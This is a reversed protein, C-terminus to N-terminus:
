NKGGIEKGLKQEMDVKGAVFWVAKEGAVLWVQKEGATMWVPKEWGALQVQRKEAALWVTKEGCALQVTKEGDVLWVPKEWCGFLCDEGLWVSLEEGVLWIPERGAEGEGQCGVQFTRRM